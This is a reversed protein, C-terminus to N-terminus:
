FSYDYYESRHGLSLGKFRGAKDVKFVKRQGDPNSTFEYKQSESMGNDDVRKATDQTVVVASVQGARQGTKFRKVEVVTAAYRDSWMLITAGMGVEPEPSRYSDTVMNVVSGYRM